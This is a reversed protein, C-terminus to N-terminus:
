DRHRDREVDPPKYEDLHVFRIRASEVDTLAGCERWFRSHKDTLQRKCLIYFYDKLKGSEWVRQLKNASVRYLEFYCHQMFDDYLRAPVVGRFLSPIDYEWLYNIADAPKM